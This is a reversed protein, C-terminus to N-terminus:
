NSIWPLIRLFYCNIFLCFVFSNLPINDHDHMNQSSNRLFVLRSTKFFFCVYTINYRGSQNTSVAHKILTCICSTVRSAISCASCASIKRARTQLSHIFSTKKCILALKKVFTLLCTSTSLLVQRCSTNVRCKKRARTVERRAKDCFL